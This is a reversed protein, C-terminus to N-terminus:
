RGLWVAESGSGRGVRFGKGEHENVRFLGFPWRIFGLIALIGSLSAVPAWREDRLPYTASAWVARRVPACVGRHAPLAWDRGLPVHGALWAVDLAMCAVYPWEIWGPPEKSRM